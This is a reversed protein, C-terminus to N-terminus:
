ALCVDRRYAAARFIAPACPKPTGTGPARHAALGAGRVDARSNKARIAGGTREATAGLPRQRRDCCIGRALKGMEM